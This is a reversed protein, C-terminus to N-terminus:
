LLRLATLTMWSGFVAGFAVGLIKLWFCVASLQEDNLARYQGRWLFRNLLIQNQITTRFPNMPEGLVSWTDHHRERLMRYMRLGLPIAAIFLGTLAIFFMLNVDATRM